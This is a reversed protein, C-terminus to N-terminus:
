HRPLLKKQKVSQKEKENMKNITFRGGIKKQTCLTARAFTLFSLIVPTDDTSTVRLRWTL